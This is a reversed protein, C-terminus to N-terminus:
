KIVTLQVPTNAGPKSNKTASFYPSCCASFNANFKKDWTQRSFGVDFSWLNYKINQDIGFQYFQNANMGTDNGVYSQIQGGTWPKYKLGIRNINSVVNSGYNNFQKDTVGVLNNSFTYEAGILLKKPSALNPNETYNIQGNLKLPIDIFRYEGGLLLSNNSQDGTIAGTATPSNSVNTNDINTNVILGNNVKKIRDGVYGSFSENFKKELKVEGLIQSSNATLDKQDIIEGKLRMNEKLNLQIEAGTKEIGVDAPLSSTLGFDKDVKKTYAKIHGWDKQYQAELNYAQASKNVGVDQNSSIASEVKITLDSDKYKLDVGSMQQKSQNGQDIVTTLGIETKENINYALRGGAVTHNGKSDLTNYEIHVYYFNLYSDYIPASEKLTIIGM